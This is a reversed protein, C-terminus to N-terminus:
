TDSPKRILQEIYRAANRSILAEEFLHFNKETNETLVHDGPLFSYFSKCTTFPTIGAIRTKLYTVLENGGMDHAMRELSEVMPQKWEQSDYYPMAKKITLYDSFSHDGSMMATSSLKIFDNFLHNPLKEVLIINIEKHGKAQTQFKIELAGTKNNVTALTAKSYLQSCNFLDEKDTNLLTQLGNIVNAHRYQDPCVMIYNGGSNSARDNVLTNALFVQACTVSAKSSLYALYYNTDPTMDVNFSDLLLGLEHQYNQEITDVEAQGLPLYGLMDNSFGLSNISTPILNLNKLAAIYTDDSKYPPRLSEIEDILVIEASNPKRTRIYNEVVNAVHDPKAISYPSVIILPADCAENDPAGSPLQLDRKITPPYTTLDITLLNVQSGLNVALNALKNGLALDGGGHAKFNLIVVNRAKLSNTDLPLNLEPKTADPVM